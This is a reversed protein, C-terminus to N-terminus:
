YFVWLGHEAYLVTLAYLGAFGIAYLIATVLFGPSFRRQWEYVVLITLAFPIFGLYGPVPMQFLHVVDPLIIYHWGTLSPYNFAEWFFGALLGTGALVRYPKGGPSFGAIPTFPIVALLPVIWMGQNWWFVDNFLPLLTLVLAATLSFAKHNALWRLPREPLRQRGGILWWSEVVIPIVTAFSAFGLPVLQWPERIRSHYRWQPAPLNLAEFFL